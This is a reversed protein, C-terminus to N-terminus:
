SCCSMGVNSQGNTIMIFDGGGMVVMGVNSQGNTTMIFDGGRMIM